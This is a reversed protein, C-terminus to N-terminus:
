GMENGPRTDYSPLSGPYNQKATNQQNKKSTNLQHIKEKSNQKDSDTLHNATFVTQSTVYITDLPINVIGVGVTCCCSSSTKLM